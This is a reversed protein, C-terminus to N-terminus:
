KTITVKISKKVNGVSATLTVIGSKKATLIGSPSVSAISKDSVNWKPTGSVGYRKVTFGFRQGIRLRSTYKNYKLFANYVKVPQKKYYNNTGDSIKVTIDATGYKKGTIIGNRSVPAIQKQSSGYTVTADKLEPPLSVEIQSTHNYSSTYIVTRSYDIKLKKVATTFAKKLGATDENSSLLHDVSFAELTPDFYRHYGRQYTKKRNQYYSAGDWCTDLIIWRKNESDYAENWHHEEANKHDVTLPQSDTQAYGSVVKAAVGSERLLAATLNAFGKAQAYGYQYTTAAAIATKQNTFDLDYCINNMVWDHVALIKEYDSKCHQTIEASAKALIKNGTKSKYHSLALADERNSSFIRLNHIRTNSIVTNAIGNKVEIQMTNTGAAYSEYHGSKNPATYIEVYYFGDALSATSLSIPNRASSAQQVVAQGFSNSLRVLLYGNQFKQAASVTVLSGSCDITYSNQTQQFAVPYAIAPLISGWILLISLFFIFLRKLHM